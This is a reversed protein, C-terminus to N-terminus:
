VNGVMFIVGVSVIVIGGGLLLGVLVINFLSSIFLNLVMSGLVGDSFFVMGDVLLMIMFMVSFIGSVM